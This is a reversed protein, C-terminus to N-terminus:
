IVSKSKKYIFKYQIFLLILLCVFLILSVIFNYKFYLISICLICITFSNIINLSLIIFGILCLIYSFITCTINSFLDIDYTKDIIEEKSLKEDYVKNINEKGYIYNDFSNDKQMALVSISSSDNYRFSIRIDGVEPLDIDESTTYYENSINLNNEKAYNEDLDLYRSKVGLDDIQENTLKFAGLYTDNYFKKSEYKISSPNVYENSKFKSSDIIKSYWNTEYSYTDEDEMVENYQYMEVVRELKSTRISVNFLPDVLDDNLILYGNTAVLKGNYKSDVFTSKVFSCKNIVEKRISLRDIFENESLVLFVIGCVIFIIGIIKKVINRM